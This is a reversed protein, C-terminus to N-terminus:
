DLVGKDVKKMLVDLATGNCGVSSNRWYLIISMTDNYTTRFVEEGCDYQVGNAVYFYDTWNDVNLLRRDFPIVDGGLGRLPADDIESLVIYNKCSSGEMVEFPVFSFPTEHVFVVNEEGNCLSMPVRFKEMGDVALTKYYYLHSFLFMFM